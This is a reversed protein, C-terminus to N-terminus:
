VVYPKNPLVLHVNFSPTLRTRGLPDAVFLERRAVQRAGAGDFRHKDMSAADVHTTHRMM